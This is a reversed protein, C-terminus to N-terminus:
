HRNLRAYIGRNQRYIQVFERFVADYVPRHEPTPAYTKVISTHAAIQELTRHKLALAALLAAGRANAQLPDQVQRIPRNLVDACIQCWLASQAGGGIFNLAPLPRGIFAEVANLLWRANYAVGELVARALHARTANLTLNHFGGRVTADEIPTREGYLWPTFVLGASGAPVSAALQDILAYTNPPKTPHAEDTPWFLQDRLFTLCAGASEQENFLLYRGPVPAPLSAMNANLDTKKYPVHCILWASTGIYLHAEYDRVAGSGLAASPVDPTGTIVPLGAPLGLAKAAAPLLSGLVHTAPYLDPLQARNLRTLQLLHPHYDVRQISRNDTVWHLIISDYSAAFRGTLRLNLYDKPELFKHATRYLAPQEHKLYLIHALPDKGAHGPAGGTLWLWPLVKHLAYGAVKLPGATLERIYPAGRSDLWILANGLPEGNAGVAVTGSWQATCSVGLIAEPPLLRQAMLRQAATTIAQWWDAPNQEAGGSPLLQTPVPEFVAGVIEGTLTVLAVKPGSTGLDIAFIASPSHHHETLM